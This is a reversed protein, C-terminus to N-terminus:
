DEFLHRVFPIQPLRFAVESILRFLPTTREAPETIPRPYEVSVSFTDVEGNDDSVTFVPSVQSAGTFFHPVFVTISQDPQVQTRFNQFPFSVEVKLNEFTSDGEYAVRLIEGREAEADRWFAPGTQTDTSTGDASPTTPTTETLQNETESRGSDDAQTPTTTHVAEAVTDLVSVSASYMTGTTAPTDPTEAATIMTSDAAICPTSGMMLVTTLAAVLKTRKM